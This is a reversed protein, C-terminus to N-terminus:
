RGHKRLIVKPQFKVEKFEYGLLIKHKKIIQNTWQRSKGVIFAIENIFYGEGYLTLIRKDLSKLENNQIYASLDLYFDLIKQRNDFAITRRDYTKIAGSEEEIDVFGRDKLIQYWVKKLDKLM